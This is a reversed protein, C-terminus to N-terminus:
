LCAAFQRVEDTTMDATLSLRIRSTNKPVTPPRIPLCYYGQGQLYEAKALTAE